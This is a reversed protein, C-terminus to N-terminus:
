SSSLLTNHALSSGLVLKPSLAEEGYWCYDVEDHHGHPGASLAECVCEGEESDVDNVCNEPERGKDSDCHPIAAADLLARLLLLYGVVLAVACGEFPTTLALTIDALGTDTDTDYDQSNEVV